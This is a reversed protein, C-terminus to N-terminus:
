ARSEGKRIVALTVGPIADGDRVWAALDTVQSDDAWAVGTLGDMVSKCFNDIDGSRRARRVVLELAFSGDTRWGKPLASRAAIRLAQEFEVTRRPMITRPKRGAQRVVRPRACPVPAVDLVLTFRDPMKM